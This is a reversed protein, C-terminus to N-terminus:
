KGPPVGSAPQSATPARYFLPSSFFRQVASSNKLIQGVADKYALTNERNMPATSFSVRLQKLQDMQESTLKFQKGFDSLVINNIKHSEEYESYREPGLAEKLRAELDPRLKGGSQTLDENDIALFVKKFEEPTLQVNRTLFEITHGQGDEYMRYNLLEEPSLYESLYDIRAKRNARAQTQEEPTSSPGLRLAPFHLLAQQIRARKEDGFEELSSDSVTDLGLQKLLADREQVLKAVATEVTKREPPTSWYKALPNRTREIRGRYLANVRGRVISAIVSEPCGIARLNGALQLYDQSDINGWHLGMPLSQADTASASTHENRKPAASSAGHEPRLSSVALALLYGILLGAVM